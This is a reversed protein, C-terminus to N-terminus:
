GENAGPSPSVPSSEGGPRRSRDGPTARPANAAGARGRGSRGCALGPPDRDNSTPDQRSSSRIGPNRRNISSAPAKGPSKPSLGPPGTGISFAAAAVILRFPKGPQTPPPCPERQTELAPTPATCRSSGSVLLTTASTFILMGQAAIATPKSETQTALALSLAIQR